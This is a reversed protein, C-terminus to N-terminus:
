INVKKIFGSTKKFWFKRVLILLWRPLISFYACIHACKLRKFHACIRKYIQRRNTCLFRNGYTYQFSHMLKHVNYMSCNYVIDLLKKILFKHIRTYQLIHVFRHVDLYSLTHVFDDMSETYFNACLFTVGHTYQFSHM